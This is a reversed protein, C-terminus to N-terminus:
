LAMDPGAAPVRSILSPVTLSMVVVTCLQVCRHLVVSHNNCLEKKSRETVPSARIFRARFIASLVHLLVSQLSDCFVGIELGFDTVGM